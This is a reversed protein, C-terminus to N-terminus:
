EPEQFSIEEPDVSGTRRHVRVILALGISVETAAVAIIFLVVAHGEMDHWQLAAGVFAIAAANLMIEVGLLMMVLNRRTLLAFMGILFVIGSLVMVHSFPVIM